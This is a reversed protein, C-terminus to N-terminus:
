RRGGRREAVRERLVDASVAVIIFTGVVAGNWLPPISTLLTGNQLVAIFLVGGLTGTISGRGGTISTGGVVVAAIAALPIDAGASVQIVGTRSIYILAAVGVVLGLAAYALTISRTVNIGYLRAGEADNGIAYLARGFRRYRMVYWLVAFCALIIITVDPLGFTFGGAFLPSISPAFLDTGGWLGFLVSRWVAMMGLTAIIAPVKGKSVITGNLAGMITGLVVAAAVIAFINWNGVSLRGTVWAIVGLISGVSVDIGGHIIVLTMGAAVLALAASASIINAVNSLTLFYPSLRSFIVVEGLLLV